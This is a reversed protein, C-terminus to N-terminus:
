SGFGDYGECYTLESGVPEWWYIKRKKKHFLNYIVDPTNFFVMAIFVLVALGFLGITIVKEKLVTRWSAGALFGVSFVIPILLIKM